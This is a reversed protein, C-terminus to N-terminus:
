RTELILMLGKEWSLHAEEETIENSITLTPQLFSNLTVDSLPYKVGTVSFHDISGELSFFSIYRGWQKQKEIVARREKIYIKNKPDLLILHTLM